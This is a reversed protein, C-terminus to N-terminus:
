SADQGKRLAKCDLHFAVPQPHIADRGARGVQHLRSLNGVGDGAHDVIAVEEDALDEICSGARDDSTPLSSPTTHRTVPAAWPMPRPMTRRIAFSPALTATLARSSSSRSRRTTPSIPPNGAGASM